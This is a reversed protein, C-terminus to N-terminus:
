SVSAPISVLCFLFGFVLLFTLVRRDTSRGRHGTSRCWGLSPEKWDTSQATSRKWAVTSRATSREADTCRTCMPRCLPRDAGQMPRGPLRGHVIKAQQMRRKQEKQNRIETSDESTEEIEERGVFHNNFKWNIQYNAKTMLCTDPLVLLQTWLQAVKEEKVNVLVLNHYLHSPSAKM